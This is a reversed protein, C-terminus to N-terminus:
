KETAVDIHIHFVHKPGDKRSSVRGGSFPEGRYLVTYDADRLRAIGTQKRAVFSPSPRTDPFRPSRERLRIAHVCFAFQFSEIKLWVCTNPNPAFLWRQGGTRARWLDCRYRRARSSNEAPPLVIADIKRKIGSMKRLESHINKRIENNGM